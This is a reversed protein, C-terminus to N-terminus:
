YPLEQQLDKTKETEDEQEEKIDDAYISDTTVELNIGFQEKLQGYDFCYAQDVVSEEPAPSGIPADGYLQRGQIINKFRCSKKKGLYAPSNELYYALSTKPLLTEGIKRGHLLYLEFIRKYRLFLVTKPSAYEQKSKGEDVKLKDKYELRYDAYIAIQGEQRLYGVIDWFVAIENNHKLEKNQEVIGNAALKCLDSYNFPVDIKHQLCGFAAVPIVWNLM